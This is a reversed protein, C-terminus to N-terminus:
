GNNQEKFLAYGELEWLKDKALIMAKSTALDSGIRANFNEPMVCASVGTALLFKKGNTGPLYAHCFTSTTGEPQSTVYEVEGMLRNIHEPMVRAATLGAAVIRQETTQDNM